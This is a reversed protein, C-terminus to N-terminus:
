AGRGRGSVRAQALAALRGISKVSVYKVYKQGRRKTTFVYGKFHNHDYWRILHEISATASARRTMALM